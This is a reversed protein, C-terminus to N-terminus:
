NIEELYFVEQFFFCFVASTEHFLLSLPMLPFSLNRQLPQPTIFLLLSLPLMLAALFSTHPLLSLSPTLHLSPPILRYPCFSATIRHSSSSATLLSPYLTARQKDPSNAPITAEEERQSCNKEWSHSCCVPHSMVSTFSFSHSLAFPGIKRMLMEGKNIVSSHRLCPPASTDGRIQCPPYIPAITKKLM